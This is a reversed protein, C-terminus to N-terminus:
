KKTTTKKLKKVKKIENEIGKEDISYTHSFKKVYKEDCIYVEDISSIKTPISVFTDYFNDIIDSMSNFKEYDKSPISEIIGMRQQTQLFCGRFNKYTSRLLKKGYDNNSLVDIINPKDQETFWVSYAYCIFKIFDKNQILKNCQSVKDCLEGQLLKNIGLQESYARDFDFLKAVYMTEIYYSKGNIKYLIIKSKDLKEFFVNGDHLDNHTIGYLWMSYCAVCVQFMLNFVEKNPLVPIMKRQLISSMTKGEIIETFLMDYTISKLIESPIKKSSGKTIVSGFAPRDRKRLLIYWMSRSFREEVKTKFGKSLFAIMDDYPIGSVYDYSYVFSSSINSEILKRVLGYVKGEYDLAKMHDFTDEGDRDIKMVISKLKATPTVGLKVFMKRKDALTIIFTDSPSSSNSALGKITKINSLFYDM